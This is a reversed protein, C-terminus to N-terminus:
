TSPLIRNALCSACHWAASDWRFFGAAQPQEADEGFSRVQQSERVPITASGGVSGVSRIGPWGASELVGLDIRRSTTRGIKAVKM